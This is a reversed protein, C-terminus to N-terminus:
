WGNTMIPDEHGIVFPIKYDGVWKYYVNVCKENSHYEEWLSQIIYDPPNNIDFEFHTIDNNNLTNQVDEISSLDSEMGNTNVGLDKLKKLIDSLDRKDKVVKKADSLITKFDPIQPITMDGTLILKYYESMKIDIINLTEDMKSIVTKGSNVINNSEVMVKDLTKGNLLTTSGNFINNNIINILVLTNNTITTSTPTEGSDIKIKVGLVWDNYTGIESILMKGSLIDKITIVMKEIMFRIRMIEFDSNNKQIYSAGLDTIVMEILKGIDNNRLDNLSLNPILVPSSGGNKILKIFQTFVMDCNLTMFLSSNGGDLKWKEFLLKEIPSGDLPDNDTILDALLKLIDMNNFITLLIDKYKEYSDSLNTTQKDKIDSVVLTSVVNSKISIAPKTVPGTESPSPLQAPAKIVTTDPLKLYQIKSPNKLWDEIFKTYDYASMWLKMKTDFFEKPILNTLSEDVVELFTNMIEHGLRAALEPNYMIGDKGFAGEDVLTMYIRKININRPAIYTKSFDFNNVNKGGHERRYKSSRNEMVGKITDFMGGKAPKYFPAMLDIDTTNIAFRSSYKKDSQGFYVPKIGLDTLLNKVKDATFGGYGSVIINKTCNVMLQFIREVVEMLVEKAAIDAPTAVSHSEAVTKLGKYSNNIDGLIYIINGHCGNRSSILADTTYEDEPLGTYVIGWLQNLMKLAATIDRRIILKRIYFDNAELDAGAADLGSLTLAYVEDPIYIQSLFMKGFKDLLNGAINKLVTLTDLVGALGADRFINDTKLDMDKMSSFLAGFSVNQLAGIGNGLLDELGTLKDLSLGKGKKLFGANQLTTIESKVKASFTLDKVTGMGGSSGIKSDYESTYNGFVNAIYTTKDKAIKDRDAKNKAAKDEAAKKDAAAKADAASTDAPLAM